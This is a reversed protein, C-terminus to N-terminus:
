HYLLGENVYIYINKYSNVWNQVIDSSSILSSILRYALVKLYSINYLCHLLDLRAWKPLFAAAVSVEQGRAVVGPSQESPQSVLM